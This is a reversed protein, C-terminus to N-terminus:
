EVTVQGNMLMPLLSDRLNSLQRKQELNRNLLQIQPMVFKTYNSVVDANFPIKFGRLIEPPVRRQSHSTGTSGKTCFAIFADTKVTYYIYGRLNDEKPELIVYETSCIANDNSNVMVIRNYWPNLKPALIQGNHVIFKNSQIEDGKELSYSGCADYAPISFHKFVRDPTEFPTISEKPTKSLDGLNKVEWGAPIERKLTSNYVMKGGSSKYPDGNEDPFDFQVFWYDYLQKAMTELEANMRTNLAIKKDIDSLIAAIEIQKDISPIFVDNENIIEQTMLPQACGIHKKNLNLSRLLYFLFNQDIKETSHISIANDSIWCKGKCQHIIGCFAGVRGVVIVNEDNYSDAYGLVGNGGYIPYLGDDVPRKRGNSMKILDGLKYKTLM